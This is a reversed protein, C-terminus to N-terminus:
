WGWGYPYGFGLGLGGRWHRGAPGIPIPFGGYFGNGFGRGYYGGFRPYAYGFFPDYYGLRANNRKLQNIEAQKTKARSNMEDAIANQKALEYQQHMYDLVQASVGKQSLDLSQSPTLDYVSNSAKIKAIIEDPTKGAKSDAVVEDLSVNEVTNPMLKALEEPTIRDVQTQKAAGASNTTACGALLFVSAFVISLLKAIETKFSLLKAMETKFSLLKLISM